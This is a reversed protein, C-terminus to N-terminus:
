HKVLFDMVTKMGVENPWFKRRWFRVMYKHQSNGSTVIVSSTVGIGADNKDIVTNTGKQELKTGQQVM